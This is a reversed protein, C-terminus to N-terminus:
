PRAARLPYHAEPFSPPPVRYVMASTFLFLAV